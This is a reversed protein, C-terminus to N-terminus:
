LRSSSAALTCRGSTRTCTLGDGLLRPSLQLWLFQSPKGSSPMHCQPRAIQIPTQWSSLLFPTKRPLWLLMHLPTSTNLLLRKWQAPHSTSPLSMSSTFPKSHRASLSPSTGLVEHDLFLWPARPARPLSFPSSPNSESFAQPISPPSWSAPMQRERLIAMEMLCIVFCM